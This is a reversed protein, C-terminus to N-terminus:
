RRVDAKNGGGKNGANERWDQGFAQRLLVRVSLREWDLPLSIYSDTVPGDCAAATRGGGKAWLLVGFASSTGPSKHRRHQAAGACRGAPRQSERSGRFVGWWRPISRGCPLSLLNRACDPM